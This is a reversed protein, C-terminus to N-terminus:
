FYHLTDNILSNELLNQFDAYTIGEAQVSFLYTDNQWYAAYENTNLRATYVTQGHITEKKWEAGYVGSINGHTGQDKARLLTRVRVTATSGLKQFGLDALNKSIVSIYNCSYGSDRTLYLPAFGVVQRAQDYTDYTIIPNPMGAWSTGADPAPAAAFAASTFICAAVATLLSQKVLQKKM